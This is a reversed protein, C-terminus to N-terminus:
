SMHRDSVGRAWSTAFAGITRGGQKPVTSVRIHIERATEVVGGYATLPVTTVNLSPVCLM